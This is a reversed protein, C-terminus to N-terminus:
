KGQTKRKSDGSMVNMVKIPTLTLASFVLAMRCTQGSAGDDDAEDFIVLEKEFDDSAGASGM